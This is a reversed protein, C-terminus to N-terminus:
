SALRLPQCMQRAHRVSRTAQMPPYQQWRNLGTRIYEPDLELTACINVFSFLWHDSESSFWEEAERALRQDRQKRSVFQKRFCDVADELVAYMLAIEGSTKSSRIPSCYFQVPHVVQASPITDTETPDDLWAPQTPHRFLKAHLTEQHLAQM